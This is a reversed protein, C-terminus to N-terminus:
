DIIGGAIAGSAGQDRASIGYVRRNASCLVRSTFRSSKYFRAYDLLTTSGHYRFGLQGEVLYGSGIDPSLLDQLYRCSLHDPQLMHLHTLIICRSSTGCLCVTIHQVRPVYVDMSVTVFGLHDEEIDYM